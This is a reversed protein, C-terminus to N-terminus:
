KESTNTNSRLYEDLIIVASIQDIVKKREKPDMNVRDLIEEAESTTFREDLFEVPVKLGKALRNGFKQVKEAQTGVTGDLSIPLGIIIREVEHISVLDGIATIDRQRNTRTLTCLPHAGSGLVDSVAIGIRVDGVDLGLLVAM